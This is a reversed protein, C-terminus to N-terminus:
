QGRDCGRVTADFDCFAVGLSKSLPVKNFRQSDPHGLIASVDTFKGDGDNRYLYPFTGEFNQPRGYARGGGVLQFGQSQDYERSWSVYNCVFLDLDGDNDYDFWGTSRVGVIRMVVSAPPRLSM